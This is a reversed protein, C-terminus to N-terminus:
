FRELERYANRSGKIIKRHTETKKRHVGKHWVPLSGVFELRTGLQMTRVGVRHRELERYVKRSGGVIKWSDRDEELSSGQAMRTLERYGRCAGSASRGIYIHLLMPPPLAATPPSVFPSSFSSSSM